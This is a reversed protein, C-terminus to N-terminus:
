DLVPKPSHTFIQGIFSGTLNPRPGRLIEQEFDNNTYQYLSEETGGGPLSSGIYKM